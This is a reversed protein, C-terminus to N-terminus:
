KRRLPNGLSYTQPIQTLPRFVVKVVTTRKLEITNTTHKPHKVVKEKEL